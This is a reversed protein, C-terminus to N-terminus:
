IPFPVARHLLTLTDLGGGLVAELSILADGCPGEWLSEPGIRAATRRLLSHTHEERLVLEFSDGAEAAADVPRELEANLYTRGRENVEHSLLFGGPKLVRPLAALLRRSDEPKLYMLLGFCVAADFPEGRWSEVFSAADGRQFEVRSPKKGLKDVLDVVLWTGLRPDAIMDPLSPMSGGGLDLVRWPGPGLREALLRAARRRYARWPGRGYRGYDAFSEFHGEVGSTV